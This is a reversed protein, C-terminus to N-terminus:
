KTTEKSIQNKMLELVETLLTRVLEYKKDVAMILSTQNEFLKHVTNITANHKKELELLRSMIPDSM